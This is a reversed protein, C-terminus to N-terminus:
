LLIIPRCCHLAELLAADCGLASCVLLPALQLEALSRRVKQRNSELGGLRIGQRLALELVEKVDDSAPSEQGLTLDRKHGLEILAPNEALRVHYRISFRAPMISLQVYVHLMLDHPGHLLPTKDLISLQIKVPQSHLSIGHVLPQDCLWGLLPQM